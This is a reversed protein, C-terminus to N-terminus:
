RPARRQRRVPAPETAPAEGMEAVIVLTQTGCVICYTQQNRPREVHQTRQCGSCRYTRQMPLGMRPVPQVVERCRPCKWHQAVPSIGESEWAKRDCKPCRYDVRQGM